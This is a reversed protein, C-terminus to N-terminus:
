EQQHSGTEGEAMLRVGPALHSMKLQMLTPNSGPALIAVLLLEGNEGAARSIVTGESCELVTAECGQMGIAKTVKAAELFIERVVPGAKGFDIGSKANEDTTMGGDPGMIACGRYGDVKALERFVAAGPETEKRSKMEDMRRSAELILAVHSSEITRAPAKVNKRSEISGGPFSMIRFFAEEGSLDGLMAHVIDGGEFFIMGTEGNCDVKLAATNCSLCHLQIMDTLEIGRMTGTFGHQESIAGAVAARLEDVDYPKEVFSLCGRLMADRKIEATPFATIAIFSLSPSEKTAELILDMGNMGPMHIDTVLLDIGGDRIIDLAEEGSAATIIDARIEDCRLSAALIDLQDAEDEVLLIKKM